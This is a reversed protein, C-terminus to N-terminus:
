LDKGCLTRLTEVTRNNEILLIGGLVALSVTQVILVLAITFRIM